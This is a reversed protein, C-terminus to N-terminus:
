LDGNIGASYVGYGKKSIHLGDFQFLTLDTPDLANYGSSAVVANLGNAAAASTIGAFMTNYLVTDTDDPAPDPNGFGICNDAYGAATQRTSPLVKIPIGSSGYGFWDFYVTAGSVTSVNTIKINHLGTSLGDIVIGAYVWCPIPNNGFYCGPTHPAPSLLSNKTSVSKGNKGRCDFTGHDVGDIEIKFKAGVNADQMQTGIVVYPGNADFSATAGIVTTYIGIGNVPSNSWAGTLTISPDRAPTRVGAGYWYLQAAFTLGSNARKDADKRNWCVDNVKDNSLCVIMDSTPTVAYIARAQDALMDGPFALNILTEGRIAAIFDCWSPGEVFQAPPPTIYFQTGAIFGADVSAGHVVLKSM